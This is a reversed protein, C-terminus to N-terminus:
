PESGFENRACGIAQKSIAKKNLRNTKVGSRTPEEDESGLVIDDECKNVNPEVTASASQKGPRKPPKSGAARSM